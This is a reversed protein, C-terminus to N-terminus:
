HNQVNQDSYQGVGLYMSPAWSSYLTPTNVAVNVTGTSYRYAVARADTASLQTTGASVPTFKAHNNYYSGNPIVVTASDITGIATSSSVLTV